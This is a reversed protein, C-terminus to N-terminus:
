SFLFIQLPQEPDIRQFTEQRKGREHPIRSWSYLVTSAIQMHSSEAIGFDYVEHADAAILNM